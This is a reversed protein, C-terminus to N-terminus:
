NEGSQNRFWSKRPSDCGTMFEILDEPEELNPDIASRVSKELQSTALQVIIHFRRGIAVIFGESFELKREGLGRLLPAKISDERTIVGGTHVISHRLQWMLELESIVEGSYINMNPFLIRFYSNVKEPNHWGPLADAIIQGPERPDGRGALIRQLSLNCGAKELKKALDIDDFGGMFDVTNIIEAFQAKQFIEFHSLLLAFSSMSLRQFSDESGSTLSNDKKRPFNRICHNIADCIHTVEKLFTTAPPENLPKEAWQLSHPPFYDTLKRSFLPM